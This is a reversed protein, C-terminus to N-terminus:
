VYSSTLYPIYSCTTASYFFQGLLLTSLSRLNINHTYQFFTLIAMKPVQFQYCSFLFVDFMVTSLNSSSNTVRAALHVIKIATIVKSACLYMGPFSHKQQQRLQSSLECVYETTNQIYSYNRFECTPWFLGFISLSCVYIIQDLITIVKRIVFM